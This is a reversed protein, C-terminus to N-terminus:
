VEELLSEIDGVLDDRIQKEEPSLWTLHNLKYIVGSKKSKVAKLYWKEALRYDQTFLNVFGNSFMYLSALFMEIIVLYIELAGLSFGLPVLKRCGTFITEDVRSYCDMCADGFRKYAPLVGDEIKKIKVYM